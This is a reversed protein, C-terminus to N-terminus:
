GAIWKQRGDMQVVTGVREELTEDASFTRCSACLKDACQAFLPAHMGVYRLEGVLGEVSTLLQFAHWQHMLGLGFQRVVNGALIRGVVKQFDM